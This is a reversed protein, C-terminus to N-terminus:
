YSGFSCPWNKFANCRSSFVPQRTLLASGQSQKIAASVETMLRQETGGGDNYTQPSRFKL